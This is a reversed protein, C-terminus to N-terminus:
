ATAKLRVRLDNYAAVTETVPLELLQDASVSQSAWQQVQTVGNMLTVTLTGVPSFGAPIKIQLTLYGGVSPESGPDLGIECEDDLVSTKIYDADDPTTEDLVSYLDVNTGTDSRVWSGDTVDSAARLYDYNIVQISPAQGAIALDGVGATVNEQSTVVPALGAIALSGAGATVVEQTTVTPALGTITLAGADPAVAKDSVISITPAYGTIALAGAGPSVSEQRTVSPAQGAITLSGASPTVTKAASVTENIFPGGPIQQENSGTENVFPGGPIQREASM